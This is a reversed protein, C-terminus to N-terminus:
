FTYAYFYLEVQVTKVTRGFFHGQRNKVAALILRTLALKLTQPLPKKKNFAIFM